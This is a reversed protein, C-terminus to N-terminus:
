AFQITRGTGSAVAREYALAAVAVDQLATGTSDFVIVEEASRRGSKLGAVVEGLEAYVDDKIMLGEAIAHHLDGIVACQDLIDAVVTSKSLLEPEIEQKDESDAGVAAVFAGACVDGSGLYARRAPTCTVCVDSARTAAGLDETAVAVLGLEAEVERALARARAPEVDFAHVRRLPLVQSM